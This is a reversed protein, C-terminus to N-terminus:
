SREALRIILLISTMCKNLPWSPLIRAIQRPATLVMSVEVVVAAAVVMKAVVVVVDVVGVDEAVVITVKWM